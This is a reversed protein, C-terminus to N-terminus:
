GTRFALQRRVRDADLFWNEGPNLPLDAYFVEAAMDLAEWREVVVAHASQYRDSLWAHWNRGATTHAYRLAKVDDPEPYSPQPLIQALDAAPNLPLNSCVCFEPEELYKRAAIEGALAREALEPARERVIDEVSLGAPDITRLRGTLLRDATRQFCIGTFNGGHFDWVLAHALEHRLVADDDNFGHPWRPSFTIM